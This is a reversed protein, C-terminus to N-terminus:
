ASVRIGTSQIYGLTHAVWIGAFLVISLGIRLMLSYVTKSSKGKDRMMFFLASGLSGLILLFAIPIIWNM